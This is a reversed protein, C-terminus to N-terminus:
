LRGDDFTNQNDYVNRLVLCVGSIVAIGYMYRKDNSFDQSVVAFKLLVRKDSKKRKIM